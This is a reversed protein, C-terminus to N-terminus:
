RQSDLISEEVDFLPKNIDAKSKSESVKPDSWPGTVDYRFTVLNENVGPIVKMFTYVALAALPNAYGALAAITPISAGIAPTVYAKLKFTEKLLDVQGFLAVSASPAKLGFSELQLVGSKLQAQGKIQDYVMGKNTVDKLDLKLRRALSEVSLLGILRAFGPEIDDITGEKLEFNLQGTAAKTSFCELAGQWYLNANVKAKEGTFGQKLKIFRLMEAVKKSRLTLALTSKHSAKDFLYQGTLTGAGHGFRGQLDTITLREHSDLLHFNVEDVLYGNLEIKKGKFLTEPWLTKSAQEPQCLTNRAVDFPQSSEIAHLRLREVNMEIPTNPKIVVNALVDSSKIQLATRLNRTLWEIRVNPYASERFTLAQVDVVSPEWKLASGGSQSSEAQWKKAFDLHTAYDMWDDLNVEKIEGKVYSSTADSSFYDHTMTGFLANFQQLQYHSKASEWRGKLTLIGPLGANVVVSKQTVSATAKVRKGALDSADFPAPILSNVQDTFAEIQINLASNKAQLLPIDVGLNWPLSADFFPNKEPLFLGEGSISIIGEKAKTNVSFHSDHDFVKASLSSATASKETFELAGQIKQIAIKDFLRMSAKNFIVRGLVTESKGDYGSLPIWVRDLIVDVSGKFQTNKIFSEMGLLSALPSQTLYSIAPNFQTAVKGKFLLAINKQDLHDILVEVEQAYNGNGVHIRPSTIKLQYPTFVIEGSFDELMPWDADFKLFTNEVQASVKFIGSGDEFPFQNLDGKLEVQAQINNGKVLAMKLWAQLEPSLLNYPLYQKLNQISGINISLQADIYGQKTATAELFIPMKDLTFEVPKLEWAAKEMSHTLEIQNPLVIKGGGKPLNLGSLMMPHKTKLTVKNLRKLLSVDHLELGPYDTVPLRLQKITMELLPLQLTRWNFQGKVKEIAFDSAQDLLTTSYGEPLISKVIVKFPEIDFYDSQFNLFQDEIFHLEIPSVTKIYQNDLQIQSLRFRWDKALTSRKHLAASWVLELGIHKPLATNQQHWKLSQTNLNLTLQSVNSQLVDVQLDLILEGKPLTQHWVPPLLLAIAEVRLPQFSLVSLSGQEIQGLVNTDFSSKFAFREFNLSEKYALGFESIVSLESGKLSQYHYIHLTLDPSLISKFVLDSVKIRPWLQSINVNIETLKEVADASFYEIDFASQNLGSPKKNHFGGKEMTLYDGFKLTPILMSFLNVDMDLHQIDLDFEVHNVVLQDVQFQFGLWNQQIAIREFSIQSETVWEVKEIFSDPAYQVWSIFLRTILLYGILIAFAIQLLHHSHKVVM